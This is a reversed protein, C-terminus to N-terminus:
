DSVANLRCMPDARLTVGSQQCLHWALVLNSSLVPLGTEAELGSILGLTDLNTCSLFVGDVDAAPVLQRIATKLSDPSIRVVKSEEAEAFTGFVPTAIGAEALVDRLRASVREIYPSLLALRTIGLAQCAAVLATLPDTVARVQASTRVLEAVRDPGIQAAGSTCAYGIADYSLRTPLLSVAQPIDREMQQLTDPTVELGSPVRSVYLDTDMPILRRFDKEIRQDAQLIILGLRPSDDPVLDYGFATM